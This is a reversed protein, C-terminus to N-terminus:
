RNETPLFSLDDPINALADLRVEFAEAGAALAETTMAKAAAPTDAAIVACILTM